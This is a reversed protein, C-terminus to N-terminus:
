NSDWGEMAAQFYGHLLSKLALRLYMALGQRLSDIPNLQYLAQRAHMFSHTIDGPM